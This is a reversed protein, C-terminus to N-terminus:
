GANPGICLGGIANIEQDKLILTGIIEGAHKKVLSKIEVLDIEDTKLYPLIIQSGAAALLPTKATVALITKEDLSCIYAGCPSDVELALNSSVKIKQHTRSQIFLSGHNEIMIENLLLGFEKGLFETLAPSILLQPSIKYKKAVQMIRQVIEPSKKPPKPWKDTKSYEPNGQFFLDAEARYKYTLGLAKEKLNEEAM